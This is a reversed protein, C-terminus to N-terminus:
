GERSHRDLWDHASPLIEEMTAAQYTSPGPFIRRPSIHGTTWGELVGPAIDNTYHDGISFVRLPDYEPGMLERVTTVLGHPKNAGSRVVDFSQALGLRELLPVAAEYPSNSALVLTAQGRAKELFNQLGAPVELPCGGELMHRRTAMFAEQWQEPTLTQGFPEMLRVVAEWNDAAPVLDEGAVHAQVKRLYEQATRESLLDAVQRAYYLYPEDGRYLTGDFDFIMLPKTPM